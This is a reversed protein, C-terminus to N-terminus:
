RTINRLHEVLKNAEEPYIAILHTRVLAPEIGSSDNLQYVLDDSPLEPMHCDICNTEITERELKSAIDDEFHVQQHCSQCRRSFLPLQGREQQHPNHCSGCDMEPSQIFCKSATLLGYQNGHVDMKNESVSKAVQYGYNSLSDGTLFDYSQNAYVRLGSHCLGCADLRQQRSLASIDILHKSEEEFPNRQHFEVHEWAPGHCRECEIGLFLQEKEYANSLTPHPLNTFSTTHCELCAGRIPRAFYVSDRKYGPSNIWSGSRTHYSVPLQYLFDKKWYLYSQGEKGSGVTIDFHRYKMEEGSPTQLQAVQYLGTDSAVMEVVMRDNIRVKNGPASFDGLINDRSALRSSLHHSSFQHDRFIDEHCSQCSKSGAFQLGSHHTFLPQDRRLDHELITFKLVIAVFAVITGLLM